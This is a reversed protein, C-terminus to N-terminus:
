IVNNIKLNHIVIMVLSLLIVALSIAAGAYLLLMELRKMMEAENIAGHSRSSIPSVRERKEEISERYLGQREEFPIHSVGQWGKGQVHVENQQLEDFQGKYRGGRCIDHGGAQSGAPLNHGGDHCACGFSIVKEYSRM